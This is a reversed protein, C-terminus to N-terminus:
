LQIAEILNTKFNTSRSGHVTIAVSQKVGDCLGCDICQIGKSDALCEVESDHLADGVMAVRFTKAGLAQYKLAQKPSDASVMCLKLFRADFNAHSAQHTYGTHGTGLLAVAAVADFPVAAPDGYAGLRIKRSEFHHGHKTMDFTPYIGRHFGKYVANPAQGVNVYCAGKNYHRHPCAGCVASDQGTKTAEVPNIDTRIIWTQVMDGTKANSTAMTAILAIPSGDLVSAGQWMIYGRSRPLGAPSTKKDQSLYRM